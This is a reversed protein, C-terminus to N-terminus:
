RYVKNGLRCGLLSKTRFFMPKQRLRHRSYVTGAGFKLASGRSCALPISPPRLAFVLIAFPPSTEAAAACLLSTKKKQSGRRPREGTKEDRRGTPYAPRRWRPGDIWLSPPLSPPGKERESPATPHASLDAAPRTPRLSLLLHLGVVVIRWPDVVGGERKEM